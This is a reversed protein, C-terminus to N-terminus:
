LAQVASCGARQRPPRPHRQLRAQPPGRARAAPWLSPALAMRVLWDDHQPTPPRVVLPVTRSALLSENRSNLAGLFYALVDYTGITVAEQYVTVSSAIAKEVLTVLRGGVFERVSLDGAAALVKFCPTELKFTHNFPGYCPAASPASAALAFAAAYIAFRLAAM